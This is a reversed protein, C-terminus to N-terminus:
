DIMNEWNANFGFCNRQDIKIHKLKFVKWHKKDWYIFRYRLIFINFANWFLTKVLVGYTFEYLLQLISVLFHVLYIFCSYRTCDKELFRKTKVYGRVHLLNIYRLDLTIQVFQTVLKDCTSTVDWFHNRMMFNDYSEGVM